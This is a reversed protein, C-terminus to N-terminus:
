TMEEALTNVTAEAHDATTQCGPCTLWGVLSAVRTENWEEADPHDWSFERKCRHCFERDRTVLDDASIWETMPDREATSM